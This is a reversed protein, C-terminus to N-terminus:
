LVVQQFTASLSHAAESSYPTEKFKLCKFLAQSGLPPTWYFREGPDLGMLFARIAKFESESRVSFNVEWPPLDCNLGNGTDQVYGDGYSISYARITHQASPAIDPDWAFTSTM